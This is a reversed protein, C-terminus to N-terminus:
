ELAAYTNPPSFILPNPAIFRDCVPDFSASSVRFRERSTAAVEPTQVRQM